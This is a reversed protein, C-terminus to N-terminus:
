LGQMVSLGRGVKFGCCSEEERRVPNKGRFGQGAHAFGKFHNCWVHGRVLGNDYM